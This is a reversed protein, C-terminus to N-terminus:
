GRPAPSTSEDSRAPAVYASVDSLGATLSLWARAVPVMRALTRALSDDIGYNFIENPDLREWADLIRDFEPGGVTRIGLDLARMLQLENQLYTLEDSAEVDPKREFFEDLRYSIDELVDARKLVASLRDRLLEWEDCEDPDGHRAADAAARSRDNAYVQIANALLDVDPQPLHENWREALAIVRGLQEAAKDASRDTM